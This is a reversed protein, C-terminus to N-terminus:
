KGTRLYRERRKDPTYRKSASIAEAKKCQDCRCGSRYSNTTGCVVNPVAGNRRVSERNCRLHSFSINELDFYLRVPDESDLWPTVHEISFTDRTMPDGCKCCSSQRTEQILKWLVDKVLRNAATSPNMGLQMKKKDTM